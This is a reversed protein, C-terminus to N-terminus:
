LIAKTSTMTEEITCPSKVDGWVLKLIELIIIRIIMMDQPAALRQKRKLHFPTDIADNYESLGYYSLYEDYVPGGGYQTGMNSFIEMRLCEGYPPGLYFSMIYRARSVELELHQIGLLMQDPLHSVKGITITPECPVGHADESFSGKAYDKRDNEPKKTEWPLNCPFSDNQDKM